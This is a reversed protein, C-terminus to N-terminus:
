LVKNTADIAIQVNILERILYDKKNELETIFKRNVYGLPMGQKSQQAEQANM